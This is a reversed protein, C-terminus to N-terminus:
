VNRDGQKAIHQLESVLTKVRADLANKAATQEKSLFLFSDDEIKKIQAKTAAIENVIALIRLYEPSRVHLHVQEEGLEKLLKSLREIGDPRRVFLQVGCSDCCFYPKNRKSIRKELKRGCLFCPLSQM